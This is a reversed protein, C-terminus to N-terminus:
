TTPFSSVITRPQLPRQGPRCDCGPLRTPVPASPEGHLPRRLQARDRRVWWRGSKEQREKKGGARARLGVWARMGSQQPAGRWQEAAHLGSYPEFPPRFTPAGKKLSHCRGPVASRGARGPSSLPTMGAAGSPVSARQYPQLPTAAVAGDEQDGGPYGGGVGAPRPLPASRSAGTYSRLDRRSATSAAAGQGQAGVM